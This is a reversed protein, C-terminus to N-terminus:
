RVYIQSAPSTAGGMLGTLIRGIYLISKDRVFFTSGMLIFGVIGPIGLCILAM